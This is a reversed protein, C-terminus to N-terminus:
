LWGDAQLREIVREPKLGILCDHTAGPLQCQKAYCPRCPLSIEFVRDRQGVAHSRSSDIPGFFAYVPIGGAALLHMPGSDNTVAFSGHSALALLEPLSFAGTSDIGAVAALSSNLSREESTGLWLVQYGAAQLRVALAEYYQVPWRKSTWAPSCGAHMLVLKRGTLNRRALWDRVRESIENAVTVKASATDPLSLLKALEKLRLEPHIRPRRPISIATRYPWGRWIGIREARTGALWTMWRSAHSGQLDIVRGFRERRMRMGFRCASMWGRDPMAVVRGVDIAEFLSSFPAMTLVSLRCDKRLALRQLFPLCTAVDGLAGLKIVLTQCAGANDALNSSTGEVNM